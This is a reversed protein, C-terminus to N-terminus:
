TVCVRRYHDIHTVQLRTEYRGLMEEPFEIIAVLDQRISTHTSQELEEAPGLEVSSACSRESVTSGYSNSDALFLGIAFDISM